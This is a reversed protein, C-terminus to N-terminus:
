IIKHCDLILNKYLKTTPASQWYEKNNIDMITLRGNSGSGTDINIVNHNFEPFKNKTVSHGVIAEDIKISNKHDYHIQIPHTISKSKLYLQRNICFSLEKQKTILRNENFGAHCLITNNVFYYFKCKNFYWDLMSDLQPLKQLENITSYANCKLWKNDILKTKHWKYLWLDHNGWCPYFNQIENYFLDLCLHAENGIGDCLDGIFYLSDIENNYNCKTLVEILGKYNGHIDGVVYNRGKSKKRM